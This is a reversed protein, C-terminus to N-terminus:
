AAWRGVPAQQPRFWTHPASHDIRDYVRATDTCTLCTPPQGSGATVELLNSHMGCLATDATPYIAHSGGDPDVGIALLERFGVPITETELATM